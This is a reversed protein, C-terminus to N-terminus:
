ESLSIMDFFMTKTHENPDNPMLMRFDNKEYFPIANIYADVTIFRFASVGQKEQLLFKLSTMLESGLGTGSTSKDVAFRGIKVAPYSSFQKELPFEKKIRKWM